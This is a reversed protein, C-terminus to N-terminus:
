AIQYFLDGVFQLQKGFGSLSSDEIFLQGSTNLGTNLRFGQKQMSLTVGPFFGIIEDSQKRSDLFVNDTYTAGLTFTPTLTIFGQHPPPNFLDPGVWSPARTPFLQEPIKEQPVTIEPRQTPEQETEQEKTTPRQVGPTTPMGPVPAPQAPQPQSP